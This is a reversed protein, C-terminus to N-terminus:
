PDPSLLYTFLPFLAPRNDARPRRAASGSSSSRDAGCSRRRSRFRDLHDRLQCREDARTERHLAAGGAAASSHRRLRPRRRGDRCRKTSRSPAPSPRLDAPFETIVGHPTRYGTCISIEPLGDLVDLWAIAPRERAGLLSRAAAYWGCRRPRGDVGWVGPRERLRDALVGSLETPLPGRGRADYAKAVGLVRRHRAAARWAPASASRPTPRPSSRIPGTISISCRRRLM